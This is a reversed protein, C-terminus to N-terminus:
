KDKRRIDIDTTSSQENECKPCKYVTISEHGMEIVKQVEMENGCKKCTM